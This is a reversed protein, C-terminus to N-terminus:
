KKFDPFKLLQNEIHALAKQMSKRIEALTTSTAPNIMELRIRLDNEKTTAVISVVCGEKKKENSYVTLQEDEVQAPLDMENGALKFVNIIQETTIPADLHYTVEM